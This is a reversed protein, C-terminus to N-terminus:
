GDGAEVGLDELRARALRHEPDLQLVRRFDDIAEDRRGLELLAFGRNYRASPLDPTMRVAVDLSALAEEFRDLQV